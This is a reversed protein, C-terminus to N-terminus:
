HIPYRHRRKILNWLSCSGLKTNRNNAILSAKSSNTGVEMKVDLYDMCYIDSFQNKAQVEWM